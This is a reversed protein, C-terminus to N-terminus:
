LNAMNVSHINITTSIHVHKKPPQNKIDKRHNNLRINLSTESKRVYQIKCMICVLLYIVYNSHCTVQYFITFTERTQTSTFTATKLVKQLLAISQHLLPCMSRRNNKTYTHSNKPQKKNRLHFVRQIQKRVTSKFIYGKEVFRKILKRTNSSSQVHASLESHRVICFVKKFHSRIHRNQM